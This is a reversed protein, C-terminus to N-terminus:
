VTKSEIFKLHELSKDTNFCIQNNIKQFKLRELADEKRMVGNLVFSITEGVNDNAINGIVIDYKHSYAKISRCKIVFDLWEISPNDFLKINLNKNASIEDYEYINLVAEARTSSIKRDFLLKRRAWRIAQDEIDTTYFGFGFDRGTESIIIAPEEVRFLSGHYVIM